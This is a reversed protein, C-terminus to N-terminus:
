RDGARLTKDALITALMHEVLADAPRMGSRAVGKEGHIGLGLEIEDDGLQFGTQGAAPVTCAGLGVGMSGLEAAAARAVAAVAASAAGEAASPRSSTTCRSMTPWSWSRARSGRPM